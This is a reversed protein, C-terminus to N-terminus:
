CPWVHGRGLRKRGYEAPISAGLYGAQGLLSVPLAPFKEPGRNWEGPRNSTRRLSSRSSRTNERDTATLFSMM